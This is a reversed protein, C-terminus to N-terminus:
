RQSSKISAVADGRKQFIGVLSHRNGPTKSSLRERSWAEFGLDTSFAFGIVQKAEDWVVEYLIKAM